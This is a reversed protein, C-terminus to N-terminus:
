VDTKLKVYRIILFIASSIATLWAGFVFPIQAIRNSEIMLEQKISPDANAVAVYAQQYSLYYGALGTILPMCVVMLAVLWFSLHHLKTRDFKMSFLVVVSIIGTFLTLMMFQGGEVFWM